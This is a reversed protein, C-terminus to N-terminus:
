WISHKQTTALVVQVLNTEGYAHCHSVFFEECLLVQFRVAAEWLNGMIVEEFCNSSSYRKRFSVALCFLSISMFPCLCFRTELTFFFVM